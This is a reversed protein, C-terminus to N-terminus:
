NGKVLEIVTIEPPSLLRMRPGWTGVGRSVYIKYNNKEYLGSHLPYFMKTVISFPLIQGKHTHGSLQLDINVGNVVRPRHKLLITFKESLKTLSKVDEIKGGFQTQYVEDPLGVINIGKVQVVKNDILTVGMKEFVMKAKEYGMYFEHNGSVGFKGLIPNYNSWLEANNDWGVELIDGGFLLLEVREEKLKNIVKEVFEDGVLHGHHLDSVYGIRLNETIKPSKIVVKEIKIVNAEYFSYFCLMLTLFMSLTANKLVDAKIRLMLVTLRYIISVCFFLTIFGMYNYTLFAYEKILFKYEKRLLVGLIVPSLTMFCM